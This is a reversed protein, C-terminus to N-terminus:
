GESWNPWKDERQEHSCHFHRQSEGIHSIIKM